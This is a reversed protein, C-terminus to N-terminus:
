LSDLINELSAPDAELILDYVGRVEQDLLLLTDRAIEMNLCAEVM